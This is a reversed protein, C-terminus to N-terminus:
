SSLLSAGQTQSSAPLWASLAELGNKTYRRSNAPSPWKAIVSSEQSRPSRRSFGTLHRLFYSPEAYRGCESSGNLDPKQSLQLFDWSRLRTRRCGLRLWGLWSRARVQFPSSTFGPTSPRGSSVVALTLCQRRAPM